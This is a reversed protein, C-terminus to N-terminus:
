NVVRNIFVLKDTLPVIDVFVNFADDAVRCFTFIVFLKDTDPM